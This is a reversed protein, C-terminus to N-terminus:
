GSVIDSIDRGAIEAAERADVGLVRLMTEAAQDIIPEPEAADFCALLVSVYGGFCFTAATRLDPASFRGSAMGAKLDRHTFAGFAQRLSESPLGSHSLFWRWLDSQVVIRGIYRSSTALVEAPDAGAGLQRQVREDLAAAAAVMIPLLVEHKSKFHLYFTGHGVDAAATIDGITVADVGRAAFHRSAAEIIRARAEQRKREVRSLPAPESASEPMVNEFIVITLFSQM